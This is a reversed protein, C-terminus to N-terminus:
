SGSTCCGKSLPKSKSYSDNMSLCLYVDQFRDVFLEIKLFHNSKKTLLIIILSFISSSRGWGRKLTSNSCNPLSSIGLYIFTHNSCSTKSSKYYMKWAWSKRRQCGLLLWGNVHYSIHSSFNCDYDIVHNVLDLYLKSANFNTWSWFL